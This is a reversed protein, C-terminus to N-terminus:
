SSAANKFIAHHVIDGPKIGLKQAAGGVLELVAQVPARPGIPDESHPVANDKIAEIVGNSHVFLMDLPIFTHCMWFSARREQYFNFLMGHDEAMVNRHMLGIEQEKATSALEVTFTHTKGGSDITLPSLSLSQAKAPTLPERPCASQAFAPALAPSSVLGAILVVASIRLLAFQRM